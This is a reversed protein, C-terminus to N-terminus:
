ARGSEGYLWCAVSQDHGIRKLPAMDHCVAMAKPCRAEFRCGKPPDLLNPLQGPIGSLVGSSRGPHPVAALLGQTYPHAPNDFLAKVSADEVVQGSYMVVVRDCLSAVVGLDHTILIVSLGLDEMLEGILVLIQAQITVDLATTPEDAILIQPRGSLAMAILVRQRMGGSLQHPYNNFQTEPNPLHVKRLMEIAHDKAERRTRSEKKPLFRQHAMIVDVLQNGVTFVPNLFTMPDQFIMAIDLGRIARMREESAQVLDEGNFLIRGSRVRGPPSPVLKLISKATVSKGCGTEGVIGLSEGKALDINVEKIAQYVGDFTNFDLSFDQISLLPTESM